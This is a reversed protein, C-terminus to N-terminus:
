RRSALWEEIEKVDPAQRAGSAELVKKADAAMAIAKQDRRVDWVARALAFRMKAVNVPEGGEIKTARELIPLAEKSKHQALFVFALGGLDEATHPHNPGVAKESIAVARRYCAVADDFRKQSLLVDGLNVLANEVEPHEPGYTKEAIALARRLIKEAEALDGKSQYAVAMNNLSPLLEANDPGLKKEYAAIVPKFEAIAEDFKGRQLYVAAVNVRTGATDPHDPGLARLQIELAKQYLALAEDLQGKSWYSNGVNKTAQAVKPHSPGLTKEFLARAREHYDVAGAYDGQKRMLNGLANLTIGRDPDAADRLPLSKELVARAEGYKGEEMLAMGFNDDLAAELRPDGGLRELLARAHDAAAHAEPFKQLRDGYLATLEVWARTAAELHGGAEAALIAAKLDAEAAPYEAASEEVDGLVDLVDAELPRYGLKRADAALARARPLAERAQGAHSMAEVTARRDSAAEVSLATDRDAPPPVRARLAKLDGCREIEPLRAAATVARQVVAADAGAFLRGLARADRLRDDLCEMRLTMVAESQEGRLRTAECAETHQAIWRQRYRDVLLAVGRWADSAYPVGTAMFATEVKPADWVGNWKDAAGRCLRSPGMAEVAGMGVLLLTAVAAAARWLRRRGQRQRELADLLAEMSPFRQAPDPDLGRLLTRRIAAHGSVKVVRRARIEEVLGLLNRAAFPRQGHLAEFATVCFSFQDSRADATAGELQEPAMYAPTGMIAGSRTQPADAPLAGDAPQPAGEVRALGFDTVLVRGSQSVLVNEPKFDRHVLGAAHAAALGRGADVLADLIDAPPPKDDALWRALTAGDILEMAIFDRGEWAGVDYVTIVQPSQLRAMVQAEQKLRVRAEEGAVKDQGASWDLRLLKLAVKRDLQPDYAAYVVGMGGAGIKDIIVYRGLQTGRAIEQADNDPEQSSRALQVVVFRCSECDEVHGLLSDREAAPLSGSVLDALSEAAPCAM